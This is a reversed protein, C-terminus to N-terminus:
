GRKKITTGTLNDFFGSAYAEVEREPSIFRSTGRDSRVDPSLDIVKIVFSWNMVSDSITAHGQANLFGVTGRGISDVSMPKVTWGPEVMASDNGAASQVIPTIEDIPMQEISRKIDGLGNM